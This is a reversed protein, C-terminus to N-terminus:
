LQEPGNLSSLLVEFTALVASCNRLITVDAVYQLANCHVSFFDHEFINSKM